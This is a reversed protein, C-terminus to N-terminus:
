QKLRDASGAQQATPRKFASVCREYEARDFCYPGLGSFWEVAQGVSKPMDVPKSMDLGVRRWWVTSDMSSVEAVVVSCWLDLDDPCMLVPAVAVCGTPPLIREWVLAREKPDELWDLLTPVLGLLSLDPCASDLLVDLQVGDLVFVQHREPVFKSTGDIAELRNMTRGLESSAIM